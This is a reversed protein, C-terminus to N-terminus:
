HPAALRGRRPSGPSRPTDPSATSSPSCMSASSTLGSIQPGSPATASRGREPSTGTRAVPPLANCLQCPTPGNRQAPQRQQSWGVTVCRGAASAMAPQRALAPPPVAPVPCHARCLCYRSVRGSSLRWLPGKRGADIVLLDNAASVLVQGAAGPPLGAAHQPERGNIPRTLDYSRRRLHRLERVDSCDAQPAPTAVSTGTRLSERWADMAPCDAANRTDNWVGVAGTRTAATYVYDGLFEAQLDNQASGRPDGTAGRALTSFRGITGGSVDAHLIM